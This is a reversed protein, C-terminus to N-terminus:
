FRAERAVIVVLSYFPGWGDTADGESLVGQFSRGIMILHWAVFTAVMMEVDSAQLGPRSAFIEGGDGMRVKPCSAM